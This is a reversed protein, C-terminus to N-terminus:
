KRTLYIATGIFVGGSIMQAIPHGFQAASGIYLLAMGIFYLAEETGINERLTKFFNTM